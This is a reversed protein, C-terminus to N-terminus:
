DLTTVTAISLEPIVVRITKNKFGKNKKLACNLSKNTVFLQVPKLAVAEKLDEIRISLEVDSEIGNMIVLSFDNRDPSAFALVRIHRFSDYWLNLAGHGTPIPTIVKVMEWGPKVYRFVQKAAYYRKRPFYKWNITDTKLLGYETWQGDHAHFNDFADWIVGASFGDQFSKMLRRTSRWAFEYEIEGTQDLDGYETIWLPIDRFASSKIRKAFLAYETPQLFFGGREGIDGNGYTHAAFARIRSVYSSDSLVAELKDSEWHADDIAILKVDSLRHEDLKKLIARQAVLMDAGDIDPGEPYGLDTENFPALLNFRLGEKERAWELMTAIMEAYADFDALRNPEDPRGMAPHTKGSVNFFPEIGKNNLYRFVEWANKFVPSTYVSDLYIEPWRENNERKTPDLWNALGTCDFRFLTSGLEDVLLDLAPILKGNNWQGPNINVGFGDVTLLSNTFDISIEKPIPKGKQHSFGPIPFFLLFLLSYFCKHSFFDM